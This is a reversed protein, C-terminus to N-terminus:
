AARRDEQVEADDDTAPVYTTSTRVGLENPALAGRRRAQVSHFTFYLLGPILLALTHILTMMVLRMDEM